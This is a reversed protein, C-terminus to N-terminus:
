HAHGHHDHDPDRRAQLAPWLEQTVRAMARVAAALSRGAPKPHFVLRDLRMTNLWGDILEVCHEVSGIAWRDDVPGAAAVTAAMMIVLIAFRHM